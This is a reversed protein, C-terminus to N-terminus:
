FNFEKKTLLKLAADVVDPDYLTGRDQSIEKIAIEISLTPRYPRHSSIAEIVDAVALIRAELLINVGSLGEPYGSGDMREHHQLTIKAIPWPFEINRLIEYGVMSHSQILLFEVESLKGPKSLIEGPVAIKGIDHLIGAMHIGEIRDESLGMHQAILCALRAVRQQHGATYPDRKELASTLAAATAELTKKLKGYSQQLAEEARIREAIEVRLAATRDLVKQELQENLTRLDDRAKILEQNKQVATEYTSLLLNLIQLRDSTITYTRNGFNITLGLNITLDEKTRKDGYLSMNSLLHNIRSM